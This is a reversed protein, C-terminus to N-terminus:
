VEQKHGYAEMVETITKGTAEEIALKIKSAISDNDPISKMYDIGKYLAWGMLADLMDPAAAILKANAIDLENMNEALSILFTIKGNNKECETIVGLHIKQDSHNLVMAAIWPGPTHELKIM